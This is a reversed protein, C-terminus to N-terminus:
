GRTWATEPGAFGANICKLLVLEDHALLASDMLAEAVSVVVVVGAVLVLGAAVLVVQSAKEVVAEPSHSPM